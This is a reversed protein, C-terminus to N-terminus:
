YKANNPRCLGKLLDSLVQFTDIHQYDWENIVSNIVRLRDSQKIIYKKILKILQDETFATPVERYLDRLRGNNSFLKSTHRRSIVGTRDGWYAVTPVGLFAADLTLSTCGVTVLLSARKLELIYEKLYHEKIAGSYTGLGALLDPVYEVKLKNSSNFQAILKEAAGKDEGFSRYVVEHGPIENRIQANLISKLGDIESNLPFYRSISGAYIIKQTVDETIEIKKQHLDLLRFNISGIEFIKELSVKHFKVAYEKELPGQVCVADYQSFLWGNCLLQDTTYPVLITKWRNKNALMALELDQECWSSAQILIVNKYQSCIDLINKKFRKSRPFFKGIIKWSNKWRAGIHGLLYIGTRNFLNVSIDNGNSGFKTYQNSIYYEMFEPNANWYGNMRLTKLVLFMISKIFAFYKINHYEVFHTISVRNDKIFQSNKSFPSVVM